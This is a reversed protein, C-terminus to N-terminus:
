KLHIKVLRRNGFQYRKRMCKSREILNGMKESDDLASTRQKAELAKYLWNFSLELDDKKSAVKGLAHYCRAICNDDPSLKDLFLHYYKEADDFKGMKLLVDGFSMLTNEEDKYENRLHEVLSTLQHDNSTCLKMQVIWIGDQNHYVRILQFISGIMFLVEAENAFYSHSTINSFPKINELCPDADIEFFVRELDNSVNSDDVFFLALERDLSTSLFSNISIFENINNKLMQVEDKSM